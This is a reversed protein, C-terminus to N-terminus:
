LLSIAPLHSAATGIRLAEPPLYILVAAGVIPTQQRRTQKARALKILRKRLPRTSTKPRQCYRRAVGSRRAVATSRRQDLGPPMGFARLQAQSGPHLKRGLQKSQM